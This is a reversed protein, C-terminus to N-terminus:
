KVITVQRFVSESYRFLDEADEFSLGKTAAVMKNVRTKHKKIFEDRRSSMM